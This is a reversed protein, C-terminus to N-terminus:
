EQEARKIEDVMDDYADWDDIKASEFDSTDVGLSQARQILAEKIPRVAKRLESGSFDDDISEMLGGENGFDDEHNQEWMEFVEIVNYKTVSKTAAYVDDEETGAGDMGEFIQAAIDRAEAESDRKKTKLEEKFKDSDTMSAQKEKADVQAAEAKSLEAFRKLEANYRYYKGNKKFVGDTATEEFGQKKAYELITWKKGNEDTIISSSGAASAGGVTPTRFNLGSFDFKPVSASFNQMVAKPLSSGFNPISSNFISGTMSYIQANLANEYAASMNANNVITLVDQPNFGLSFYNSM